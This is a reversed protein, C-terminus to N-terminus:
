EGVAVKIEGLPFIPIMKEKVFTLADKPAMKWNSPCAGLVEVVSFGKGELQREYAKIIYQKTIDIQRPNTVTGRALYIDSDLGSLLECVKIPKGHSKDRGSPTTTTVQNMLTTPAMQGGTMGFNGNNVFIVTFNENRAAAHIIEGMGIASIDGDGQYTFVITDPQVRKFGTAVAPARGHAGECYDIDLSKYIFISCGISTIGVTKAQIGLEDIVEAVLRQVVGHSCGPCYTTPADLLSKPKDAVNYCKNGKRKTIRIATEPCVKACLGCASCEEAQVKVPLYGLGNFNEALSFLQKPCTEACLQCSKCKEENITITVM